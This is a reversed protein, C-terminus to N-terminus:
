LCLRLRVILFQTSLHSPSLPEIVPHSLLQWFSVCVQKPQCAVGSSLVTDISTTKGAMLSFIPSYTHVSYQM